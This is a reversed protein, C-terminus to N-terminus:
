VLPKKHALFLLGQGAVVAPLEQFFGARRCCGDRGELHGHVAGALSGRGIHLTGIFFDHDAVDAHATSTETRVHPLHALVGLGVVDRLRGHTVHGAVARVIGFIENGFIGVVLDLGVGIVTLHNLALVNVRYDAGCNVM